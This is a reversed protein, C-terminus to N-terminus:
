GPKLDEESWNTVSVLKRFYNQLGNGNLVCSDDWLKLLANAIDVLKFHTKADLLETIKLNSDNILKYLEKIRSSAFHVFESLINLLFDRPSRFEKRMQKEDVAGFKGPKNGSQKDDSFRISDDDPQITPSTKLKQMSSPKNVNISDKQDIKPGTYVRTLYDSTNVLTKCACSLKQIVNLEVRAM